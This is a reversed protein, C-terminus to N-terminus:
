LQLATRPLIAFMVWRISFEECTYVGYIVRSYWTNPMTTQVLGICTWKIRRRKVMNVIYPFDCDKMETECAWLGASNNGVWHEMSLPHMFRAGFARHHYGDLRRCATPQLQLSSVYKLPAIITIHDHRYGVYLGTSYVYIAYTYKLTSNIQTTRPWASWGYISGIM